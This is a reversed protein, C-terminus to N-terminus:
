AARRGPQVPTAMLWDIDRMLEKRVILKAHGVIGNGPYPLSMEEFWSPGLLAFSVESAVVVSVPLDGREIRRMLHPCREAAIRACTRHAPAMVHGMERTGALPKPEALVVRAQGEGIRKGCVDCLGLMMARRQRQMHASRFLPRGEGPSHRQGMARFRRGKYVENVVKWGGEEGSWPTTWPAILRPDAM